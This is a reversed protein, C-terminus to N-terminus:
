FAENDRRIASKATIGRMRRAVTADKETMIECCSQPILIMLKTLVKKGM